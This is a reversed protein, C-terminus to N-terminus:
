TLPFAWEGDRIVAEVRGGRGGDIDLDRSGVTFDVHILSINGGAAGYQDDTM